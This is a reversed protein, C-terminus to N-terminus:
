YKSNWLNGCTKLKGKWRRLVQLLNEKAGLSCKWIKAAYTFITHFKNRTSVCRSMQTMKFKWCEKKMLNIKWYIKTPNWFLNYLKTFLLYLNSIRNMKNTIPLNRGALNKIRLGTMMTQTQALIITLNLKMERRKM